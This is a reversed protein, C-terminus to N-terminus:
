GNEDAATTGYLRSSPRPPSLISAPRLPSAAVFLVFIPRIALQSAARTQYLPCAHGGAAVNFCLLGPWAPARRSSTIGHADRTKNRSRDLSIWRARWVEGARLWGVHLSMRCSASLLGRLHPAACDVAIMPGRSSGRRRRHSSCTSFSWFYTNKRSCNRPRKTDLACM